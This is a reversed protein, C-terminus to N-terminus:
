FYLCGPLPFGVRIPGRQGVVLINGSQSVSRGFYDNAAGDLANSQNPLYRIWQSRISLSLCSEPALEGPDAQYAGVALINGSQSVSIRFLRSLSWRSRHPRLYRIWQSGISLSLLGPMTKVRIPKGHGSPWFIARNLFPYGFYHKAAGDPATMKTLYTASGNAELQYLYAAGADSIGGPDAANVGVALINGSQSVSTGFYDRRSWRSGDSQDTTHIMPKWNIFIVAGARTFKPDAKWASLWFIARSPFPNLNMMLLPM